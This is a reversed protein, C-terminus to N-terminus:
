RASKTRKVAKVAKVVRRSEVNEPKRKSVTLPTTSSPPAKKVIAAAAKVDTAAKDPPAAKKSAVSPAAVVKATASPKSGAKSASGPKASSTPAPSTKTMSASKTTSAGKNTGADESRRDDRSAKSAAQKDAHAKEKMMQGTPCQKRLDCRPCDPEPEVCADHALQEILNLFEGGQTKPVARELLARLAADDMSSDAIGLRTLAVRSAADIPIAHGGLAQRVVTAAIYDSGAVTEYEALLKMAEKLPVKLMHELTFGYTKEFLQRLFRRIKQARVEAEPGAGLVAQVEAISSVRVENWDFFDEKFRTLSNWAYERTSGERCVAFVVAELVTLRASDTERIGKYMKKLTAHVDHIRQTKSTGAM